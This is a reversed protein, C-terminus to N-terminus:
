LWFEFSLEPLKREADSLDEPAPDKDSPPDYTVARSAHMVWNTLPMFVWDANSSGNSMGANADRIWIDIGEEALFEPETRLTRITLTDHAGHPTGGGKETIEVPSSKPSRKSSIYQTLADLKKNDRLDLDTVTRTAAHSYYYASSPLVHETWGLTPFTQPPLPWM